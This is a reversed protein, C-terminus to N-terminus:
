SASEEYTSPEVSSMIDDYLEKSEKLGLATVTKITKISMLKQESRAFEIIQEIDTENVNYPSLARYFSATIGNYSRDIAETLIAINKLSRDLDLAELTDFVNKQKLYETIKELKM